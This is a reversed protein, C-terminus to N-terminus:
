IHIQIAEDSGEDESDALRDPTSDMKTMEAEMEENM